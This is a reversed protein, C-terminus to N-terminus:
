APCDLDRLIQVSGPEMGVRSSSRIALMNTKIKTVITVVITWGMVFTHVSFASTMIVNLTTLHVIWLAAHRPNTVQTMVTPPETM